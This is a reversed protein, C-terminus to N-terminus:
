FKSFNIHRQIRGEFDPAEINANSAILLSAVQRNGFMAARHLPTELKGNTSNVNANFYILSYVLEVDGMESAIHIADLKDENNSPINPSASESLLYQVVPKSNSKCAYHLATYGHDDLEDLNLGENEDLFRKLHKKTSRAATWLDM